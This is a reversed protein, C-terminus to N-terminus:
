GINQAFRVSAHCDAHMSILKEKAQAGIESGIRVVVVGFLCIADVLVGPQVFFPDQHIGDAVGQLRRVALPIQRQPYGTGIIEFDAVFGIRHQM